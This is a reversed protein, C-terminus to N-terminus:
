KKQDMQSVLRLFMKARPNQPDQELVRQWEARAEANKGLSYYTVGLQIGADLYNPRQKKAELLEALAEEKRGMERLSKALATRVDPFDGRLALAKRYEEAAAAYQLLDFYVAGLEAHLNALKGRVFPDIPHDDRTKRADPVPAGGHRARAYVARAENYMGLDNYTVALNLCAETYNPNLKLAEQFAELARGFKGQHHYIVGLMNHVDAFEKTAALVQDLLAEAQDYSKEAFCERARQLIAQLDTESM